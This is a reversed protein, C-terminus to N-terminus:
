RGELRQGEHRQVPLPSFFETQSKDPPRARRCGRLPRPGEIRGHLGRVAGQPETAVVELPAIRQQAEALAGVGAIVELQLADRRYLQQPKFVHNLVIQRQKM